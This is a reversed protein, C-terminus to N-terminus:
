DRAPKAPGPPRGERQKGLELQVRMQDAHQNDQLVAGAAKTRDAQEKNPDVPPAPPSYKSLGELLAQVGAAAAKFNEASVQSPDGTAFSKALIAGACAAQEVEQVVDYGAPAEPPAPAGMDETPPDSPPLPSGQPDSAMDLM